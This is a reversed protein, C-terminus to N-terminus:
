ADKRNELSKNVNIGGYRFIFFGPNNTPPYRSEAANDGENQVIEYDTVIDQIETPEGLNNIWIGDIIFTKNELDLERDFIKTNLGSRPRHQNKQDTSLVTFINRKTYLTNDSKLITIHRSSPTANIGITINIHITTSNVIDITNVVIENGSFVVNVIDENFETGTIIIDLTSGPVSSTPSINTISLAGGGGDVPDFVEDFLSMFLYYDAETNGRWPNWSFVTFRSLGIDKLKNYLYLTDETHSPYSTGNPVDSKYGINPMQTHPILDDPTNLVTSNLCADLNIDFLRQTSESYGTGTFGDFDTTTDNAENFLDAPPYLVPSQRDYQFAIMYTPDLYNDQRNENVYAGQAGRGYFPYNSNDALVADYNSCKIGPFYNYFMLNWSNYVANGHVVYSMSRYKRSWSINDANRFAKNSDFPDDILDAIDDHTLGDDVTKVMQPINDYNLDQNNISGIVGEDGSPQPGILIVSNHGNHIKQYPWNGIGAGNTNGGCASWPFPRQEIDHILEGPWCRLNREEIISRLRSVLGSSGVSYSQHLLQGSTSYLHSNVDTPGPNLKDVDNGFLRTQEGQQIWIGVYNPGDPILNYNQLYELQDALRQAACEIKEQHTVQPRDPWSNDWKESARGPDSLFIHLMPVYKRHGEEDWKAWEWIEHSNSLHPMGTPPFYGWTCPMGSSPSLYELVSNNTGSFNIVGSSYSGSDSIGSSVLNCLITEDKYIKGTVVIGNVILSNDLVGSVNWDIISHRSPGGSLSVIIDPNNNLVPDDWDTTNIFSLTVLNGSDNCISESLTIM